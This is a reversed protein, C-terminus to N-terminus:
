FFALPQQCRRHQVQCAEPPLPPWGDALMPATAVSVLRLQSPQGLVSVRESTHIGSTCTLTTVQCPRHLPARAHANVPSCRITLPLPLSKHPM